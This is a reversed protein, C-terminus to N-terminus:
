STQESAFFGAMAFRIDSYSFEDGLVAKIAGAQSDNVAKYALIIQKYKKRDVFDTAPILGKAVHQALHNEITSIALGREIAIEEISKKEQYLEYSIAASAGKVQKKKKQKLNVSIQKERQQHENELKKQITDLSERTMEKDQELSKILETAKYLKKIQRFFTSELSTLEKIYKKTGKANELTSIHKNIADSFQNLEKEFYNKAAECREKIEPLRTEDAQYTLRKIERQFINATKQHPEIKKILDAAWAQHNQKVSLGKTKNYSKLHEFLASKLYSLNFTELLFRQMYRFSEQRLNESLHETSRKEQSFKRLRRDPEIGTSPIPNLLILGKLSRLRSLAVYIQGPAFAKSVDIITKDFTLGQSKHITIAWALKLPIHTFKGLEVEEIKGSNENLSYRKNYWTYEEVDVPESGDDFAVTISDNNLSEVRGIKGNYYRQEGSYDNKLFMVQADKKLKLTEEVPYYYDPFDGEIRAHYNYHKGAIENLRQQNITDAQRNHTTLFVAGQQQQKKLQPYHYQNLTAIDNQDLRNERLHALLEIFQQDTQRYIKELEIYIPKSQQLALADFFYASKYYKSLYPWEDHKVVPPLQLMDGIMLLQVGGMPTHAQRKVIRLVLDIADLTDARLMSVEDIILLEMERLMQRKSNNMRFEKRVSDATNIRENVEAQFLGQNTPLFCGFPLQFLSHLTVGGANIAAVGTPAAVIANKHTRKVIDKLFTTKGTGAKGTLFIHRNTNNVYSAAISATTQESEM